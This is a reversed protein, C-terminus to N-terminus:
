VGLGFIKGVAGLQGGLENYQALKSGARFSGQNQLLETIADGVRMGAGGETLAANFGTKSLGGLNGYRREIEQQLLMPTFQALAAKTNGGRLGGTATANQLITDVQQDQLAKFIPSEKIRSIQAAEEEATGAGALAMQTGFAQTGGKIFPALLEQLQAFRDEQESIGAQAAEIQKQAGKRAGRKSVEGAGLSLITTGATIPNPM